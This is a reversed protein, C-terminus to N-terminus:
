FADRILRIAPEQGESITVVDFRCVFHWWGRNSLFDAATRSLRERKSMGVTEAPHARSGSGRRRVEVFALVPGDRAIIDIEGWRTRYNRAVIRYGLEELYRAAVDEGPDRALM